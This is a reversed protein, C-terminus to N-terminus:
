DALILGVLRVGGFRDGANLPKSCSTHISLSQVVRGGVRLEIDSQPSLKGRGGSLTFTQGLAVVGPSVSGGRSRVTVSVAGAPDGSCRVKGSQDNTTAGCGAGTYEFVAAAPKGDACSGFRPPPQAVLVTTDAEDACVLGDPTVAVATSTSSTEETINAFDVFTVTEGPELPLDEAIVGRRDDFIDVLVRQVSRNTATYVYEVLAGLTSSGRKGALGVVEFAGFRDGLALPKSCSTQIKLTQLTAGAASIV